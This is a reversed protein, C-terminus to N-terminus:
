YRAQDERSSPAIDLCEPEARSIFGDLLNENKSLLDYSNQGHDAGRPVARRHHIAKRGLHHCFYEAKAAVIPIQDGRGVDALSPTRGEYGSWQKPGVNHEPIWVFRGGVEFSGLACREVDGPV